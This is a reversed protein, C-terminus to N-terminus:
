DLEPESVPSATKGKKKGKKGKKGKKKGGEEEDGVPNDDAYMPNESKDPKGAKDDDDDDGDSNEKDEDDAGDEKANMLQKADHIGLLCTVVTELPEAVTYEFILQSFFNMIMAKGALTDSRISCGMLVAGVGFAMWTCLIVKQAIM